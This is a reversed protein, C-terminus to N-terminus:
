KQDPGEARLTFSFQYHKDDLCYPKRTEPGCSNTGLGRQHLDLTIVTEPMFEVEHQHYAGFLDAATTHSVGCEFWTDKSQFCLKGAKGSVTLRRVDTRCGNEQPLIYTDEYMEKVTTRYLGVRAARNRDQYNEFPGRGFYEVTEFGPVTMMSVGIRPMSPASEPLTYDQEFEITGCPLVTIRQVVDIPAKRNRGLLRVQRIIQAAGDDRLAANVNVKSVALDQLGFALWRAMVKNDQGSWGRIGDNDTCARFLNAQPLTELMVTGKRRLTGDMDHRHILLETDGVTVVFAEDSETIEVPAAIEGAQEPPNAVEFAGTVEFEETAILTGAPVIGDARNLVFDFLLFVEEGPAITMRRIPPIFKESTEPATELAGIKGSQVIEGNKELRWAGDVDALTRFNRFNRIAFTLREASIMEVRIMQAAHRFEYMAPHVRRDAAIMGNCCFDFDHVTEGFDGGYALRKTGDKLTQELGQDVWDWIFGGQLCPYKMFADWYDAMSGNSNGMAHQYECLIVPRDARSDCAYDIITEITPYMPNVLNNYENHGGLFDMERQAWFRKTEGEHHIIRSSDLARTAEIAAIHNDGNGSENGTSWGFICAHSRDRLVMRRMREVFSEKWRPDRCLTSYNAHCEANAEDLVYIGYEDCLDYWRHDDPYHCTRVANFNFSKMLLIDQKMGELSLTKGHKMDHEHRNVGRIMVRKGNFLLNTGDIQINRFGVRASRCDLIKGADSYLECVMTYLVPTESSWFEVGALRAEFKTKDYDVRYSFSVPHEDSWLEEGDATFLRCKVLFDRTPGKTKGVLTNVDRGGDPVYAGIRHGLKVDCSFLGEGTALDCDGNSFIDEFFDEKTAYLYCSRYIGAMWWHDQDELYSGDTWRIVRCALLNEGEFDLYDTLDFESPLRCDKGMGVYDGNCYVELCSEAAGVHLIVRRNKWRKPLTFRTRYLGTPNKEPVLPPNNDFPMQVNTYWPIDGVGETTWNSPVNIDHWRRDAYGPAAFKEPTDEVQKLLKFKWKGDLSKVLPSHTWNRRFAGQADAYPVSCGHMPLRNIQTLEPLMFFSRTVHNPM